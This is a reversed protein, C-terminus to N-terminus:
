KASKRAVFYLVAGVALAILGTQRQMADAGFAIGISAILGLSPVVPGFPITFPARGSRRLALVSACTFSYVVLRALASTKALTVFSGSLALALAVVGTFIIAVDPTRFKVHIHGFPRPLDGQEALAFLNRSGSLAQGMNNGSMSIAAGTTMILAGAGLYLAAADALPTKSSALGPFIGVASIQVLCMVAGSILITAIMAFPLARVPDKAEGAPVPVVEYGGYAFILVLASAAVKSWDLPADPVLAGADIFHLGIFIFLALPALKGITFVNVVWASQRIGRVNIATIVLVVSSILAVRATGATVGPWYYGLADALGNV